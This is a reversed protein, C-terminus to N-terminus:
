DITYNEKEYKKTDIAFLNKSIPQNSKLNHITFTTKSGNSGIQALTYIHKTKLNIGLSVKVIDSNSDIPILQIHQIEKGNEKKVEGLSFLYGEKYFTALKSPYIFGDDEALDGSSTNIEKEEHNIVYLKKGDFVFVNDLYNLHYKDKQLVINGQLPPEDNEKIGAEENVLSTSFDIVMNEYGSMKESVEDLLQKAKENNQSFSNFVIFLVSVLLGIKKM